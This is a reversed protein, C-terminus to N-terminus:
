NQGWLLHACQRKLGPCHHGVSKAKRHMLVVRLRDPMLGLQVPRMDHQRKLMFFARRQDQLLNEFLYGLTLKDRRGLGLRIDMPCHAVPHQTRGVDKAYIVRTPRDQHIGGLTPRGIHHQRRTTIFCTDKAMQASPKSSEVLRSVPFVPGKPRAEHHIMNRTESIFNPAAVARDWFRIRKQIVCGSKGGMGLRGFACGGAGGLTMAVKVQAVRNDVARGNRDNVEMHGSVGRATEIDRAYQNIGGRKVFWRGIGISNQIPRMEKRKAIRIPVIQGGVM